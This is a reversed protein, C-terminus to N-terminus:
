PLIDPGATRYLWFTGLSRGDINTHLVMQALASPGDPSEFDLIQLVGGENSINTAHAFQAGPALNMLIGRAGPGAQRLKALAEDLTMETPWGNAQAANEASTLTGFRRKGYLGQLLNWAYDPPAPLNFGPMHSFDDATVPVRPNEKRQDVAVARYLCANKLGQKNVPCNLSGLAVKPVAKQIKQLRKLNTLSAKLRQVAPAAATVSANCFAGASSTVTGHLVRVAAITGLTGSPDRKAADLLKLAEDWQRRNFRDNPLSYMDVLKKANAVQTNLFKQPDMMQAAASALALSFADLMHNVQSGGAALTDLAEIGTKRLAAQQTPNPTASCPGQETGGGIPRPPPIPPPPPPVPAPQGGGPNDGKNCAIGGGVVRCDTKVLGSSLRPGPPGPHPMQDQRCYIDNNPDAVCGHAALWQQAQGQLKPNGGRYQPNKWCIEGYPSCPNIACRGYPAPQGNFSRTEGMPKGPPFVDPWGYLLTDADPHDRWYRCRDFFRGDPSLYKHLDPDQASFTEPPAHPDGAKYVDQARACFAGMVLWTTLLVGRAGLLRM